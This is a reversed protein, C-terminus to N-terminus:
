LADAEDALVGLDPRPQLIDGVQRVVARAGDPDTLAIYARALELLAQVSVIPLACTLLPRLRAARIVQERAAAVDSRHIAARAAWAYVLASTWYHDFDQDQVMSLAREALAMATPWDDRGVAIIRREALVVAALPLAGVEIAADFAHAFIPDARGPEDELLYSLGETHLMTARYPSLPGLGALAIQADRRMEQVGDRCLIARLYALYSEM